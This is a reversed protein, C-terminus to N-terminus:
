RQNNICSFKNKIYNRETTSLIIFWFGLSVIFICILFTLLTNDFSFIIGSIFLSILLSNVLLFIPLRQYFYMTIVWIWLGTNLSFFVGKIDWYYVSQFFIITMVGVGLLLTLTPIRLLGRSLMRLGLLSGWTWPILLYLIIGLFVSAQEFQAGFLSPILWPGTLWGTLGAFMGILWTFKLSIILLKKDKNGVQQESNSLIPLVAKEVMQPLSTLLTFIQLLLAVQGLEFLGLGAQRSLLLPGQLFWIIFFASLGLLVGKRLLRYIGEAQWEPRVTFLQKQLISMGVVGQLWWILCHVIAIQLLDAGFFLIIISAIAELPRFFAELKFVYKSASCANFVHEIWNALARGIMAVSFILLLMRTTEDYNIFWGTIACVMATLISLFSRLALTQSITQRGKNKDQGMDRSIVAWLGLSTFPMFALYWGLAYNYLGYQEAGLFRALAIAYVTRVIINMSRAGVLYGTNKVIIHLLEKNMQVLNIPQNVM